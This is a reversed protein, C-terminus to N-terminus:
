ARAPRLRRRLRLMWLWLQAFGRDTWHLPAAQTRALVADLATIRPAHREISRAFADFGGETFGNSHFCVTWLGAPMAHFRWLQQPVWTAGLWRVPRTFLGDSITRIGLQLLLEVTTADFSHAPAIWADIRVRQAEFIRCASALKAQQAARPLGAFESFPNLALLGADTTEYKHHCGHLAISWGCRQRERIYDWFDPRAPGAILQPDHNDPTVALIPRVRHRALIAEIRAWHEWNMTPCIDDFRVLYEASM